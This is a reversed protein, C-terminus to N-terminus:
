IHVKDKLVEVLFANGYSGEGLLKIQKYKTLIIKDDLMKM